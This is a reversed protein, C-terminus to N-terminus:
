IFRQYLIIMQWTTCSSAPQETHTHRNNTIPPKSLMWRSLCFQGSRQRHKSETRKYISGCSASTLGVGMEVVTCLPILEQYGLISRFYLGLLHIHVLTHIHALCIAHKHLQRCSQTCTHSDTESHKDGDEEAGPPSVWVACCRLLHETHVDTHTHTNTHKWVTTNHSSSM